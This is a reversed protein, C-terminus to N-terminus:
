RVKEYFIYKGANVRHTENGIVIEADTPVTIEYRLMNGQKKWESSIEGYATDLSAAFFDLEKCPHPAIKVRKFGPAERYPKIGAAVSYMWDAVAGYAYHNFSNMDPSWFEGDERIGDWHEWVTTAGKLVPYLWSPYERRLLLRWAIDAHGHDSLAHLLYPTGIFGTQLHGGCEEILEALKDAAAAPDEALRFHVALACETQTLYEPFTKRFGTVVKEYLKEYESVNKGLAKGARVLLSTSYAYFAASIFDPRTSGKYSGEPADLGLWDGFLSGGQWLGNKGSVSRIYDVWKKMMPYHEELLSKDGYFEYLTWPCVTAADGWGAGPISDGRPNPAIIGIQGDPKQLAAMDRLWKKFFDKVDFNYCAALMFVQADGTWGLREDRQPCDTPVDLFNDKQGWIINEYLKNLLPDSTRIGGTRKIDSYVAVATASVEAPYASDGTIRMYRFGFFTFRPKYKHIGKECIVTFESRASRYNDTYFNGNKDLVEAFSVTIKQPVDAKIELEPIGTLNQGFDIVKEGAPTIISDAPAIREHECVTISENPILTGDPGDFVKVQSPEGGTEVSSDYIEGDYIESFVIKSKRVSWSEDSIVTQKEGSAYTIELRVLIGPPSNKIKANFAADPADLRSRYWGKGCTVCLLNENKIRDTVDYAQYQLRKTYETWGPALYFNGVRRGNLKAEYVGLATIYLWAEAIEGGRCAFSKEYQPCIEGYNEAPSIWKATLKM